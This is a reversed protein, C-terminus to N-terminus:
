PVGTPSLHTRAGRTTRDSEEWAWSGASWPAAPWCTSSSSRSGSLVVSALLRPSTRHRVRSVFNFLGLTIVQPEDSQTFILPFLFGNWAQLASFIVVTSIGGKSLPIVLQFLM